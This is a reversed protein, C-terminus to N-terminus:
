QGSAFAFPPRNPANKASAADIASDIGYKIPAPVLSKAITLPDLDRLLNDLTPKKIKEVEEKLMKEKTLHEQKFKEEIQHYFIEDIDIETACNPCKITNPTSM